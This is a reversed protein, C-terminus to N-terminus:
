YCNEEKRGKNKKGKRVKEKEGDSVKNEQGKGRAEVRSRVKVKGRTFTPLISCHFIERICVIRIAKNM